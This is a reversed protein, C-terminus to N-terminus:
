SFSNFATNNGSNSHRCKDM